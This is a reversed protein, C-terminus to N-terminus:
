RLVSVTGRFEYKKDNYSDKANIVWVYTGDQVDQSSGYTGNWTAEPNFSEWVIEGWRNFLTLHFDYIDIGSIYVRWTQNFEDNDPTFINPAYVIVDNIIEAQSILTDYCQYENVVVLMVPYIGPVGEPYVTNPNQETSYRPSSGEGMDWTWSIVDDSSLDQFQIQTEYITAPIPTPTFNAMPYDYVEIYNQYTTDYICGYVSTVTMTVDFVGVDEFSYNVTNNGGATGASGFDWETSQIDGSNSSTNTFVVEVPYCGNTTDATFSPMIPTPMSIVMCESDNPCNGETIEVCVTTETTPNLDISNGNGATVGNASWTLVANGMGGSNDVSVNINDGPCITTSTTLNFVDLPNPETIVINSAVDSCANTTTPDSSYATISYTGAPLGGFINSTQITTGGDISFFNLNSGLVEIQGDTGTNCINNITPTSSIIPPNIQNVTFALTDHCGFADEVILDFDNPTSPPLNQIPLSQFPTTIGDVLYTYPATGGNTVVVSVEGNDLGCESDTNTVSQIQPYNDDLITETVVTQCGLSDEVTVNYTTGPVGGCLNGLVNNNTTTGNLTYNVLSIDGLYGAPTISIEGNCANCDSDDTVATATLEVINVTIFSTDSCNGSGVMYGYTGGSILTDALAFQTITDGAMNIWVGGADPTGGIYNALDIQPAEKCVFITSDNGAFSPTVVTINLTDSDWCNDVDYAYLVYQGSTTACLESTASNPNAIGSTNGWNVTTANGSSPIDDNFTISWNFLTGDDGGADDTIQLNWAGNATCGVMAGSLVGGEPVFDGTFPASGTNIQQTAGITFCTNTYDNSSGGNDTTLEFTTGDPCVLFIDLDSDWTHDLDFCVSEISGVSINTMNLGNVYIPSSQTQNSNIAMSAGNSYTTQTTGSFVETAEANINFCEGPCLTTDNTVVNADIGGENQVVTVVITDRLQCNSGEIVEYATTISPTADPTTCPNCSFNTGVNIPEGYIVSWTVPATGFAQMSAIQDGCLTDDPSANLPPPINLSLLVSANSPTPCASDNATFSILNATYGDQYTWCLTGTAPNTGTQTFTANPLVDLANTGLTLVDGADPDSFNVDICFQDGDCMSVTNGNTFAANTGGNNFNSFPSGGPGTGSVTVGNNTCNQVVFQIDHTISGILNGAADFEEILVTVVFNGVMTPTFNVLGTVPDITIGPIPVAASYGAQYAINAGGSGLANVLSFQLINGDSEVVGFDHSVAQGNCVYPIPYDTIISPSNNCSNTASYIDATIYFCNSTGSLNTSPNRDCVQYSMTWSDCAGPFTVTGTYVYQEIGPLTGGNCESQGIQQPCLQSIENTTGPLIATLTLGLSSPNTLGCSNTFSISPSTPASIGGCDRYLTLTIDYENPNGTCTYSFNGGAIHTANANSIILLFIITFVSKFIFKM